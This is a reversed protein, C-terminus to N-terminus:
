PKPPGNRFRRYLLRILRVHPRLYFGYKERSSSQAFYGNALPPQERTRGEVLETWLAVHAEAYRRWTLARVQSVRSAREEQIRRLVRELDAATWVPHTLGEPFDLHFGQPTVITNVGASVADLFGMSGEDEGLYLYFDFEPVWEKYIAYDRVADGTGEAWRVTAGALRLQEIISNWGAGIIEFHFDDLRMRKAVTLLKDEGKRGDAYLRTTIGLKIRRPAIDVDHAPPIVPLWQTPLGRRVLMDRTDISLCIGAQCYSEAAKLQNLKKVSDVHTIMLTHIGPRPAPDFHVFYIWHNVDVSASPESAQDADFGMESLNDVLRAAFKGLIWGVESPAVVVRIRRLTM